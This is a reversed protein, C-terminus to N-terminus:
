RVPTLNGEMGPGPKMLIIEQLVDDGFFLGLQPRNEKKENLEDFFSGDSNKNPSKM